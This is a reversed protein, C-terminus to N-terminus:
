PGGGRRGRRVKMRRPVAGRRQSPDAPGDEYEYDGPTDDGAIEDRHRKSPIHVRDVLSASPMDTSLRDLLSAGRRSPTSRPHHNNVHSRPGSNIAERAQEEDRGSGDPAWRDVMAESPMSYAESQSSVRPPSPPPRRIRVPKSHRPLDPNTDQEFARARDLHVPVVPPPSPQDEKSQQERRWAQPARDHDDTYNTRRTAEPYIERDNFTDRRLTTPSVSTNRHSGISEEPFRRPPPPAGIRSDLTPSMGRREYQGSPVRRDQQRNVDELEGRRPRPEGMGAEEYRSHENYPATTQHKDAQYQGSQRHRDTAWPTSSSNHHSTPTPARYADDVRMPDIQGYSAEAQRPAWTRPTM